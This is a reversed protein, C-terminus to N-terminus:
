LQNEIPLLGIVGSKFRQFTSTDPDKSWTKVQGNKLTEWKLQGAEDATVHYANEPSIGEDLFVKVKGAFVPSYVMIGIESNIEASRPDLNYSGVFAKKGDIVLAKTHLTSISNGGQPAVYKKVSAADPRLEYLDVGAKLMPKRRKAHGAQAAIVNNSALSNTLVRVKVGRKTLARCLEVERDRMVFYASEIILEKKAERIQRGLQGAVTEKITLTKMSEFTDHIVEARSWTLRSAVMKLRTRLSELDAEIPFPYLSPDIGSRMTALQQKFDEIRYTKAVLSEIPVAAPSNWFEDFTESIDRVIPGVAVIDLDRNNQEEGLGFYEDAINRGGVIVCSNDMTM